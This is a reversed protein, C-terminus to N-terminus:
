TYITKSQDVTRFTCSVRTHRKTRQGDVEDYHVKQIQHTWNYRHEDSMVYLSRPALYKVIVDTTEELCPYMEGRKEIPLKKLIFNCGSGLTLGCIKNEFLTRHDYHSDIGMGPRYENITMQNMTQDTLDRIRQLLEDFEVPVSDIVVLGTAGKLYQYGYTQMRRDTFRTQWKTEDAYITKLLFSEVEESVFDPYYEFPM